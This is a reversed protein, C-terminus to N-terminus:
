IRGVLAKTELFEEIAWVGWTRGNGSRKYGGFPANHDLAPHNIAVQGAQLRRAVSKAAEVDGGEVYASLGYTTDNAISVAEDVTDYSIVSAVPGFIEERAITMDNSVDAFVTPRVFWGQESAGAPRGTGGTILTAGEDMGLQIYHQVTNWQKESAVPGMSVPTLPDGVTLKEVEEKLIGVFRDKSARPVISRTPAYCTQGSNRMVGEVVTRVAADMDADPLVIQASKGGLEQTVRKVTDAADKQVQVGVATSGTFSVIDVDPHRTLIPGVDRGIGNVVNAVGAPVGAGHLIDAFVAGSHAALEAPKLVVTCGVAIAPAIKGAIQRSPYNWPPLLAAVGIPERVIVYSGRSQEFPYTPLEDILVQFSQITPGIVARSLEIPMGMDTTVAGALDDARRRIEDIIARLLDLRENLTTSSFSVFARRAAAVARDVDAHGGLQLLGSVEGIAPNRLETIKSGTTSSWRGDIYHSVISPDVEFGM